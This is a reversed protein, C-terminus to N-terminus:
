DFKLSAVISNIEDSAAEPGDQACRGVILYATIGTAVVWIHEDIAQPPGDKVELVYRMRLAAAPNGDLPTHEMAAAVTVGDFVYLSNKLVLGALWASTKFRLDDLPYRDISVSPNVGRHPEPHKAIVIRPPFADLKVQSDYLKNEYTNAHRAARKERSTLYRWTEPKTVSLKLDRHHLTDGALAVKSPSSCGVACLFFLGLLIRLISGPLM